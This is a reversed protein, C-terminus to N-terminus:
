PGDDADDADDDEWREDEEAWAENRAEVLDRWNRADDESPYPGLSNEIDDRENEHEVRDHTLCWYWKAM